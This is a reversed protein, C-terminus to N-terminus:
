AWIRNFLMELNDWAVRVDSPSPSLNFEHVYLNFLAISAAVLDKGSIAKRTPALEAKTMVGNALLHDHVGQLRAALTADSKRPLRHKLLYHDVTLELFVRLLVAGANTHDEVKLRQLERYIDKLRGQGIRLALTSPAVTKRRRKVQSKRAATSTGATGSQAGTTPALPLPAAAPRRAKPDPRHPSRFGKMYDARDAKTYITGVVFDDAALDHLLKRVPKQVEQSPFASSVQGAKRDIELGLTDRVHRDSLLRRLNTISVLNAQEESILGHSVAFKLLQLEPSAKGARSEFRDRETAGWDVTGAGDLQGGHRLRLWHIAEERSEVLVCDVEADAAYTNGASLTKLQRVAATSLTGTAQDPNLLLKLAALRRNGELVLYEDTTEEAEIVLFRDLPSLGSHVIDRALTVLKDGQAQMMAILAERQTQTGDDLRPNAPDLRLQSIPVQRQAPM